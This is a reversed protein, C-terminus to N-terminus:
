AQGPPAEGEEGPPSDPGHQERAKRDLFRRAAEREEMAGRLVVLGPIGLLGTPDDVGGGKGHGMETLCYSCFFEDRIERWMEAPHVPRNCRDCVQEFEVSSTGTSPNPVQVVQRCRPCRAKKGKLPHKVRLQTGCECRFHIM